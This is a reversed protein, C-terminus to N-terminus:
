RALLEVSSGLYLYLASRRGRLPRVRSLDARDQFRDRPLAVRRSCAARRRATPGSTCTASSSRRAATSPPASRRTSSRRAVDICCGRSFTSAASWSSTAIAPSTSCLRWGQVPRLVPRPQRPRLRRAVRGALRQRESTKTTVLDFGITEYRRDAGLAPQSSYASATARTGKTAFLRKDVSDYAFRATIGGLASRGPDPVAPNGVKPTAEVEERLVGVRLEGWSGLATGVDLAAGARRTDYQGVATEASYLYKLQQNAFVVPAVFFRQAADLPQYLQAAFANPSGLQLSTRFEGGLANLWRKEYDVRIGWQTDGKFDTSLNLDFTLYNPGWPKEIADYTLVNRGGREVAIGYGVATYDGRAVLRNADADAKAPDSCKARSPRCSPTRWRRAPTMSGM